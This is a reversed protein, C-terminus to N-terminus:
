RVLLLKRTEVFGGAALRYFYVGSAVDIGNQDKGNWVVSHSGALLPARVLTRVLRGAPDYVSLDVDARAPLDFGITTTPNFPNPRNAGLRTRGSLGGDTGGEVSVVAAPAGRIGFDDVGAEVVSGPADDRAVFRLRMTATPAIFTSVPILVFRWSADSAMTSDVTVWSTGGNNSLSVVWPDTAPNSGADNSFWRYYTIEPDVLGSLDYVGSLLTTAGGDVDNAGITAGPSSQGTIWCLVGPAATHDDEPQVTGGGTGNPDVREWIGTTAADGAAGVMWSPDSEMDLATLWPQLTFDAVSSGGDVVNVTATDPDYGFSSAIVQYTGVPVHSLTYAGAADTIDSRPAGIISVGVGGLPASSPDNVTGTIYGGPLPTLLFDYTVTSATVINVVATDPVFGYASAVVTQNGGPATMAYAGAADTSDSVAAAPIRVVGPVPFVGGTDTVTGSLTGAGPVYKLLWLGTSLDSSVITGSPLYPYTGWMGEYPGGAGLYTDYYGIEVPAFPDTYDIVRLGETYYSAYCTDNKAFINHISTGVGTGFSSVQSITGLNSIDWCRVLGGAEEDVTLLYGPTNDLLWTAHSSHGYSLTALNTVSSANSVDLIRFEGDYICGVYATDGRVYMDHIYRVEWSGLEVPNVPDTGIDLIRMGGSGLNSGIIYARSTVSDVFINHATSFGAYTNVLNPSDPNSIDVIQLGGGAGETVIYAYNGNTKMDRWISSVGTIDGVLVPNGPDTVRYFLTGTNYGIMAYEDAGSTFGWCDSYGSGKPNQNSLLIVNSSIQASAAGPLLTAAILLANSLLRIRTM